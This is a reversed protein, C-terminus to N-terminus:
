RQLMVNACSTHTPIHDFSERMTEATCIWLYNGQWLQVRSPGQMPNIQGSTTWRTLIYLLTVSLLQIQSESSQKKTSFLLCSSSIYVWLLSAQSISLIVPLSVLTHAFSKRVSVARSWLLPRSAQLLTYMWSYIASQKIQLFSHHVLVDFLKCIQKM